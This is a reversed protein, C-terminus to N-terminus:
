VQGIFDLTLFLHASQIEWEKNLCILAIEPFPRSIEEIKHYFNEM